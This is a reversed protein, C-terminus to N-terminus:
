EVIIKELKIVFNETNSKYEVKEDDYNFIIDELNDIDYVPVIKDTLEMKKCFLVQHNDVHEDYQKMRPIVIPKKNNQLALMISGPGGHTIIMRAERCYKEMLDFGILKQWKCQKPKYDTYGIQMIVEEKIIGKLKLEDIKKILRDFSQEHTGVTVFIM